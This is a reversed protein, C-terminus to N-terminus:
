PIVMDMSLITYYKQLDYPDETELEQRNSVGM